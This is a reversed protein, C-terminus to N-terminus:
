AGEFITRALELKRQAERQRYSEKRVLVPACMELVRAYIRLYRLDGPQQLEKLALNTTVILPLRAKCRQDIVTYVLELAAETEREAGLDDLVLLPIHDLTRLFARREEFGAALIRPFSTILAGVEREILANAVCAAAFTKGGGTDGWLLMGLNERRAEPWHEVYRRCRAILPSEAATEFRCDQLGADAIGAQRLAQVRDLHERRRRAAQEAEQQAQGCRCLCGVLREQGGLFVRCQKPTRCSGCHLLGERRFDEPKEQPASRRVLAELLGEMGDTM